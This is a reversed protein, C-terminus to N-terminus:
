SQREREARAFDEDHSENANPGERLTRLSREYEEEDIEGRAFREKLIGEANDTSPNGGRLGPFLRVVLWVVLTLLGGWLLLPVLMWLLGFGGMMDMMRDRRREYEDSDM